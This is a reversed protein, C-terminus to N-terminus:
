RPVGRFAAVLAAVDLPRGPAVRITLRTGNEEAVEVTSGADADLIQAGSFEVFGSKRPVVAVGRATRRQLSDYSVGLARSARYLGLKGAWSVAQTWLDPPLPARRGRGRRYREIRGRLQQLETTEGTRQEM